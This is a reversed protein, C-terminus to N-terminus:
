KKDWDAWNSLHSQSEIPFPVEGLTATRLCKLQCASRDAQTHIYISAQIGCINQITQTQFSMTHFNDCIRHPELPRCLHSAKRRIHISKLGKVDCCILASWEMASRSCPLMGLVMM